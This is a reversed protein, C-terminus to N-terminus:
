LRGGGAQRDANRFADMASLDDDDPSLDQGIPTPQTPAAEWPRRALGLLQGPIHFADAIQEFIVLKEVRCKSNMHDYLRGQTIDVAAAIRRTSIGRHNLLRFLAGWTASHAPTSFGNTASCGPSSTEHNRSPGTWPHRGTRRTELIHGVSSLRSRSPTVQRLRM